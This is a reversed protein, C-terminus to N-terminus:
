NQTLTVFLIVWDFLHWHKSKRNNSKKFNKWYIHLRFLLQLHQTSELWREGQRALWCPWWQRWEWRYNSVSTGSLWSVQHLINFWEWGTTLILHLLFVNWTQKFVLTTKSINQARLWVECLLVKKVLNFFILKGFGQFLLFVWSINSKSIAYM